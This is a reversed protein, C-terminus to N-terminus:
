GARVAKASVRVPVRFPTARIPLSGDVAVRVTSPGWPCDVATAELAPVLEELRAEVSGACGSPDWGSAAATRAADGVVRQVVGIQFWTVGVCGVLAVFLFGLAVAAATAVTALGDESGREPM